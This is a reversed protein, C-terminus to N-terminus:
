EVTVTTIHEGKAMRKLKTGLSGRGTTERVERLRLRIVMNKNTMVFLGVDDSDDDCVAQGFVVEDGAPLKCGKVGMSSRGKAAFKGVTTRKAFGSKTVTMVHGNPDVRSVSLITDDPKLRKCIAVGASKRSKVERIKDLPTKLIQGKKTSVVIEDTSKAVIAGIVEGGRDTDFFKTTTNLAKMVSSRSQKKLLGKSGVVVLVEDDKLESPILAIVKEGDEMAPIIEKVPVAKTGRKKPTIDFARMKYRNGHSTFIMVDDHTNCTAVFTPYSDEESKAGTSSGRGRRRQLRYDDVPTSKVTGDNLFTLVVDESKVMDKISISEFDKVVKTRRPHAFLKKIEETESIIVEDLKKPNALIEKLEKITEELEKKEERLKNSDMKSFRRLPMNFVHEAQRLTFGIKAIMENVPDDSKTVINIVKNRNAIAKLIGNVIELREEAKRKRCETRLRVVERRFEIFRLLIERIGVCEPRKGDIVVANMSHTTQFDTKRYIANLLAHKDARKHVEVCIRIGHKSSEDRVDVVGNLKEDRVAEALKQLLNSKNTQFPVGTLIIYDKNGKEEFDATSRFKVSGRGNAYIDPRIGAVLGGLPFDPAPMYSHIKKLTIAPDRLTAIMADCVEGLNYPLISTAMGVAIGNASTLLIMPIRAPLVSPEKESGDYNPVFEVTEDDIDSFFVKEAFVALRAETYRYAAASDGDVNGFNGKGDVMPHSVSFPQAMRVMAAYIAGDGHPHYKGMVEGTIRGCKRYQSRSRFGGEWMTWLIRRHVPKMGDRIDPIARDKIVYEAYTLFNSRLEDAFDAPKSGSTTVPNRVINTM